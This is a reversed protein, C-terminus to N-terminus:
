ECIKETYKLLHGTYKFLNEIRKRKTIWERITSYPLNVSDAIQQLHVDSHYKKFVLRIVNHRKMYGVETGTYEELCNPFPCSKCMAIHGNNYVNILYSRAYKCGIDPHANGDTVM